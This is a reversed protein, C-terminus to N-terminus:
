KCVKLGRSVRYAKSTNKYRKHDYVVPSELPVFNIGDPVINKEEIASEPMEKRNDYITIGWEREPIILPTSQVTSRKSPITFGVDLLATCDLFKQTYGKAGLVVVILIRNNREAVQVQCYGAEPVWGSKGGILGDYEMPQGQQMLNSTKLKRSCAMNTEKVTYETRALTDKFGDMSLAWRTVVALDYACTYHNPAYYGHANDFHTNICGIETAKQNMLTIGAALSGGISEALVNASDNGSVLLTGYYADQISIYEGACIGMLSSDYPVNVADKSVEIQTDAMGLGFKECTFAMTFIKTTSAPNEHQYANHELLLEGTQADMVVYANASVELREQMSSDAYAGTPLAFVFLALLIAFLWKKM